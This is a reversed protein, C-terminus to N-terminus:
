SYFVRLQSRGTLDPGEWGISVSITVWEREDVGAQKETNCWLGRLSEITLRRFAVRSNLNTPTTETSNLMRHIQTLLRPDIMSNSM